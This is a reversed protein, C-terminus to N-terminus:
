QAEQIIFRPGVAGDIGGLRQGFWRQVPAVIHSIGIKGSFFQLLPQMVVGFRSNESVAFTRVPANLGTGPGTGEVFVSVDLDGDSFDREPRMPKCPQVDVTFPRLVGKVVDVPNGRVIANGIQALSRAGQVMLVHAARIRSAGRPQKPDTSGLVLELRGNNHVPAEDIEAKVVGRFLRMANVKVGLAFQMLATRDLRSM